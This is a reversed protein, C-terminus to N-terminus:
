EFSIQPIKQPNEKKKGVKDFLAVAPCFSNCMHNPKVKCQDSKVWGSCWEDVVWKVVQWDMGVCSITNKAFFITFITIVTANFSFLCEL